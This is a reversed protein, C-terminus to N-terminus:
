CLRGAFLYRRLFLLLLLSHSISFTAELRQVSYLPPHIHAGALQSPQSNKTQLM